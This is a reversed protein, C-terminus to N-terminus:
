PLEVTDGQAQDLDVRFTAFSLSLARLNSSLPLM